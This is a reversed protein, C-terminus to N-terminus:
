TRKLACYLNKVAQEPTSGEGFVSKGEPTVGASWGKLEKSLNLDGMQTPYERELSVGPGFMCFNEGIAEILESLDPLYYEVKTEVLEGSSYHEIVSYHGKGGQPFGAEKLELCDQYTLNQM